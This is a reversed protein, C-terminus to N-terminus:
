RRKLKEKIKITLTGNFLYEFFRFSYRYIKCIIKNLPSIFINKIKREAIMIKKDSESFWSSDYWHITRTNNTIIMKGTYYNMPCFYDDPYITVGSIKQIINENKLGNKILTETTYHIINKPNQKGDKLIFHEKDYLNMIEKIIKMKPTTAFGLGLSVPLYKPNKDAKEFAMFPGEKLIDDMSSIVEVDTDFYLGGYNYMIWFRAYDSVFAWKKAEYAERVYECCEVDFNSENWEKIEYEPFFKKWSNICKIASEPLPNGGFWCYHIIKPIEM